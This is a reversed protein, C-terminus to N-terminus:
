VSTKPFGTAPPSEFRCVNLTHCQYCLTTTSEIVFQAKYTSMRFSGSRLTHKIPWDMFMRRM